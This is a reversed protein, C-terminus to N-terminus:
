MPLSIMKRRIRSLQTPTIGLYSAVHYQPIIQELGPYEQQFQLYRKDADLLVIDVERKEKHVFYQEALKRAFRELDPHHDFLSTIRSYSAVYLHCPTLAQQNILNLKQTVLSSYGGTFSPSVFFHKNYEIGEPNRYFARIVGQTIFGMQRAMENERIFFEGKKLVKQTFLASFEQWAAESLPSIRTIYEKLANM